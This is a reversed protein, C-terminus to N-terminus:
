VAYLCHRGAWRWWHLLGRVHCRETLALKSNGHDMFALKLPLHNPKDKLSFTLLLSPNPLFDLVVNAQDDYDTGDLRYNVRTSCIEIRANPADQSFVSEVPIATLQERIGSKETGERSQQNAESDM